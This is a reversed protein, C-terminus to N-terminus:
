WTKRANHSATSPLWIPVQICVTPACHSSTSSGLAAVRTDNTCVAIISGISSSATGAPTSASASSRRRISITTCHNWAAVPATSVTRVKAPWIVGASSNVSVNTSPQPPAMVTGVYWASIGSRTGLSCSLAADASPAILM